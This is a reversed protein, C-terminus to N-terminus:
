FGPQFILFELNLLLTGDVVSQGNSFILALQDRINAKFGNQKKFNGKMESANLQLMGLQLRSINNM